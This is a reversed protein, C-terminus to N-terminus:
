ESEEEEALDPLMGWFSGLTTSDLYSKIRGNCERKWAEDRDGGAGVEFAKIKQKKEKQCLICACEKTDDGQALWLLHVAFEEPTRFLNEARGQTPHGVIYLDRRANKDRAREFIEYGFLAESMADWVVDNAKNGGSSIGAKASLISGLKCLYARRAETGDGLREDKKDNPLYGIKHIGDSRTVLLLKTDKTKLPEQITQRVEIQPLTISYLNPLHKTWQHGNQDGPQTTPTSTDTTSSIITPRVVPFTHFPQYDDQAIPQSSAAGTDTASSM